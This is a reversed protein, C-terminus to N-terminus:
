WSGSDTASEYWQMSVGILKADGNLNDSATKRSLMFMVMDNAAPTNGITVAASTCIHIDGTTILTDTTEIETGWAFGDIADDDAFATGKIGWAVTGTGSDATWYFKFKVTGLDWECPMAMQFQVSEETTQDFLYSDITRDYTTTEDTYTDAGNTLTSTMASAPIAMSRYRRGVIPVVTWTTLDAELYYTLSSSLVYVWMGQSRRNSPIANRETNDAVVRFGGKGYIDIHSAYNDAAATPAIPATVPVTGAIAM